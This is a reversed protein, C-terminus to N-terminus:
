GCAEDPEEELASATSAATESKLLTAALIISAIALAAGITWALHFGGSL